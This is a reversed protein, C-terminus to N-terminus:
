DKEEKKRRGKGKKKKQVGEDSESESGASAGAAAGRKKGRTEGGAGEQGEAVKGVIEALFDFEENRELVVAKLHQATVRKGGKEKAKEAAGSVLAIMFLELAKSVAVPTVQAVKGVEEDAQMIRKIRAVPFKTRIEIGTPNPNKWPTSPPPQKNRGAMTPTYQDSPSFEPKIHSSLQPHSPHPPPPPPQHTYSPPPAGYFPLIGQTPIPDFSPAPPLAPIPPMYHAAGGTDYDVFDNNTGGFTPIQHHSSYSSLDHQPLQQQQQYQPASSASLSSPLYQQQQQKNPSALFGSLDPSQPAYTGDM